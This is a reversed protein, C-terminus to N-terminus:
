MTFCDHRHPKFCHLPENFPHATTVSLQLFKTTLTIVYSSM